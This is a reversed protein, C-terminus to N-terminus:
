PVPLLYSYFLDLVSNPRLRMKGRVANEFHHISLLGSSLLGGLQNKWCFEKDLYIYSLDGSLNVIKTMKLQNLQNLQIKRYETSCTMLLHQETMAPLVTCAFPESAAHSL